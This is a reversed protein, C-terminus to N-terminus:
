LPLLHHHYEGVDNFLMDTASAKLSLCSNKLIRDLDRKVDLNVENLQPLGERAFKLLRITHLM